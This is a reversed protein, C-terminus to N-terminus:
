RPLLLLDQSRVEGEPAWGPEGVRGGAAEQQCPPEAARPATAAGQAQQVQVCVCVCVCVCVHWAWHSHSAPTLPVHAYEQEAQLRHKEDMHKLKVRRQHEQQMEFRKFDEQRQRDLNTLAERKQVASSSAVCM